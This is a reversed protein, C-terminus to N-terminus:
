VSPETKKTIIYIQYITVFIINLSTGILLGWIGIKFFSLTLLLVTRTITGILTSVLNYKSKGLADLSSSLPYQVYQLLFFPSLFRLYREGETTHYLLYLSEKSFILFFITIPVGIVLCLSVGLLIGKKIRKSNQTVSAKSILPLLAQSIALAFFSPLSLLPLVYGTIIGYEKTIYLSSYGVFHLTSTLIIPEFFYAISGMFRSLTNPISIRLGDKAYTKNISFDKKTISIGKPIFLLLIVTSLIESIINSLVLYTIVISLGQNMFIPIGFYILFLRISNEFVNSLVHPFMRNKGFFYSRCISSISTFPIVFAMALISKSLNPHHLLSAIKPALLITIIMLLANSIILIPLLSFFLKKTNRKEESILKAFAIPLGFQALSILLTFTPLILMYLGLGETGLSRAMIIKSIMGIGKTLLGGVILIVTSQILTKKMIFNINKRFFYKRNSNIIIIHNYFSKDFIIPSDFM